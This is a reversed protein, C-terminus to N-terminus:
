TTKAEPTARLVDVAFLTISGLSFSRLLVITRTARNMNADPKVTAVRAVSHLLRASPIFSRHYTSCIDSLPPYLVPSHVPPVRSLICPSLSLPSSETACEGAVTVCRVGEHDADRLRITPVIVGRVDGSVMVGAEGIAGVSTDAGNEDEHHAHTYLVGPPVEQDFHGPPSGPPPTTRTVRPAETRGPGAQVPRPQTRQPGTTLEFIPWMPLLLRAMTSPSPATATSSRRCWVTAPALPATAGPITSGVGTWVHDRVCAAEAGAESELVTIECGARPM